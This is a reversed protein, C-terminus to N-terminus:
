PKDGSKIKEPTPPHLPIFIRVLFILHRLECIQKKISYNLAEQLLTFLTYFPYAELTRRHYLKEAFFFIGPLVLSAGLCWIMTSPYGAVSNIEMNQQSDVCEAATFLIFGQSPFRPRQAGFSEFASKRGGM